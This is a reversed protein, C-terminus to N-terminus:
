RNLDKVSAGELLNGKIILPPEKVSIEKKILSILRKAAEAGLRETDQKITTLRPRLAQSLVIGDYGAISIDEPVSLGLEELANMAGLAAFDDPLIICTPRDSCSLVKKVLLETTKTDHYRGQLLFESRININLRVLTEKFAKVRISTVDSSDGYIYAIKTHGRGAIYEVLQRMGTENDSVVSLHNQPVHDISVMPINSEYLDLTDKGTYDDVCVVVVGDVNRYMCHEYPTMKREGINGSIFTIDYGESEAEKKFSDLVSAFYNQTLGSNAQETFLVGLNYTRNTKLARAQSNPFYGMKKATEQVTRKTTESVDKHDNLAKSVTAISVGCAAAIDKISVMIHIGRNMFIAPKTM